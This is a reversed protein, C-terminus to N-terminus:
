EKKQGYIELGQRLSNGLLEMSDRIGEYPDFKGNTAVDFQGSRLRGPPNMRNLDFLDVDYGNQVFALSIAEAVSM